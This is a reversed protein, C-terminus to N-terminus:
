VTCIWFAKAEVRSERPHHGATTVTLNTPSSNARNMKEFGLVLSETKWVGTAECAPTQGRRRGVEQVEWLDTSELLESANNLADLWLM